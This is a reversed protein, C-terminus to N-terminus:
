VKRNMLQEGFLQLLQKKEESINLGKLVEFAKNTYDKVARQTVESAGSSNYLAKVSAIKESESIFKDKWLRVSSFVKLVKM